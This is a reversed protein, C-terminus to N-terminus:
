LGLDNLQSDHHYGVRNEFVTKILEFSGKDVCVDGNFPYGFLCVLYVNLALTASVMSTMLIQLGVNELVFFYTFIVTIVGGAILVVWEPIPIQSSATIIRQRRANWFECASTVMVGYSAQERQTVPEFNLSAKVLRLAARRAEPCHKGQDMLPWEDNIVREAYDKCLLQVETRKKEPFQESLLFIDAVANAENAVVMKCEQFKSMADVVVLGLLV